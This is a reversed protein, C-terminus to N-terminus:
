NDPPAVGSGGVGGVPIARFKKEIAAAFGGSSGHTGNAYRWRTRASRANARALQGISRLAETAMATM